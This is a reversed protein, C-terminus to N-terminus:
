TSGAMAALVGLTTRYTPKTSVLAVRDGAQDNALLMSALPSLGDQGSHRRQERGCVSGAQM